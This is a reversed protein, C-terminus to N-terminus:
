NFLKAKVAMVILRARRKGTPKAAVIRGDIEFLSHRIEGLKRRAAVKHRGFAM